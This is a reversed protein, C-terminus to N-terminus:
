NQRYYITEPDGVVSPNAPYKFAPVIFLVFWMIEVLVLHRKKNNSGPLSSTSYAFIIGFLAAISTGLITGAIIIEGGKQWIPYQLLEDSDIVEGEKFANETEIDIAKDIYPEIIGQNILDLITRAIAGSVLTIALFTFTKM